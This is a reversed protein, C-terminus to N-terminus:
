DAPSAPQLMLCVIHPATTVCVISEREIRSQAENNACTVQPGLVGRPECNFRGVRSLCFMALAVKHEGLGALLARGITQLM